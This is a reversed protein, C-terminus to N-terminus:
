DFASTSLTIVPRIRVMVRCSFSPNVAFDSADIHAEACTQADSVACVNDLIRVISPRDDKHVACLEGLYGIFKCLTDIHM